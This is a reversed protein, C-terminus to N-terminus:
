CEFLVKLIWGYILPSCVRLLVLSYAFSRQCFANSISFACIFPILNTLHKGAHMFFQVVTDLRVLLSPSSQASSLCACTFPILLVLSYYRPCFSSLARACRMAEKDYWTYMSCHSLATCYKGRCVYTFRCGVTCKRGRHKCTGIFARQIGINDYIYEKVM